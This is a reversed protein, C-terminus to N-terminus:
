WNIIVLIIDIFMNNVKTILGSYRIIAAKVEFMYEIKAVYQSSM